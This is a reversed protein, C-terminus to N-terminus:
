SRLSWQLSRPKAARPGFELADKSDAAADSSAGESLM